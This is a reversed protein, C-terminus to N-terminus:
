PLATLDTTLSQLTFATMDSCCTLILTKIENPDVTDFGSTGTNPMTSMHWIHVVHKDQVMSGECPL